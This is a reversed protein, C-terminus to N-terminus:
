RTSALGTMWVRLAGLPRFGKRQFAADDESSWFVIPGGSTIGAVPHIIGLDLVSNASKSFWNSLGTVTGSSFSICGAVVENDHRLLWFRIRADDLLTDKFIRGHAGEGCAEEWLSL